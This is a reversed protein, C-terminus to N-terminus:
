MMSQLQKLDGYETSSEQSLKVMKRSAEEMVLIWLPKNTGKYVKTNQPFTQHHPCQLVAGTDQTKLEGSEQTQSAKTNAQYRYIVRLM